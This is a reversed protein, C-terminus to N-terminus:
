VCEEGEREFLKKIYRYVTTQGLGTKKIIENPKLGKLHYQIVENEKEVRQNDLEERSRTANMEKLYRHITGSDTKLTKAVERISLGKEYLNKVEDLDYKRDGKNSGGKIKSMLETRSIGLNNAYSVVTSKGINLKKAVDRASMGSEYLKAVKELDYKLVGKKDKINHTKRHESSNTLQLNDIRNDKKDGNIHHIHEDEKLYRGLYKEMILRHLKIYGNKWSSPHNPKRIMIYGKNEVIGTSIDNTIESLIHDEKFM